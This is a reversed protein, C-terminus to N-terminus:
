IAAFYLLHTVTITVAITLIARLTVFQIYLTIWPFKVDKFYVTSMQKELLNM